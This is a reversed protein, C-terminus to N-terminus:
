DSEKTNGSKSNVTTYSFELSLNSPRQVSIWMHILSRVIWYSKNWYCHEIVDFSRGRRVGLFLQFKVCHFECFLSSKLFTRNAVCCRSVTVFCLTWFYSGFIDSLDLKLYYRARCCNCTPYVNKVTHHFHNWNCWRIRRFSWNGSSVESTREEKDHQTDSENRGLM